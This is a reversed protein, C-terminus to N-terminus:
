RNFFLFAATMMVIAGGAMWPKRRGFKSKTRDSLYGILPDTIVDTIRALMLILGIHALELGFDASYVYPIYLTIPISSLYIAYEPIGFAVLKSRPIKKASSRM